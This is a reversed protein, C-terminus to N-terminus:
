VQTLDALVLDCSGAHYKSGDDAETLRYFQGADILYLPLGTRADDLRYHQEGPFLVACRVEHGDPLRYLTDDHLM